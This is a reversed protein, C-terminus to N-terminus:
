LWNNELRSNVKTFMDAPLLLLLLLLLLPTM